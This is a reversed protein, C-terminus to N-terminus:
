EIRFKKIITNKPIYLTKYVGCCCEWPKEKEDRFCANEQYTVVFKPNGKTEILYCDETKTKMRIIGRDTKVFAFYYEDTKSEGSIFGLGLVFAGTIESKSLSENRVSILEYEKTTSKPKPMECSVVFFMLCITLITKM